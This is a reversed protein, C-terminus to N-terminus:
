YRLSAHSFLSDILCPLFLALMVSYLVRTAYLHINKLVAMIPHIVYMIFKKAARALYNRIAQAFANLDQILRAIRSEKYSRSPQQPHTKTRFTSLCPIM